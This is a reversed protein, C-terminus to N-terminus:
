SLGSASMLFQEGQQIMRNITLPPSNAQRQKRNEDNIEALLEVLSQAIREAHARSWFQVLAEVLREETFDDAAVTFLLGALKRLGEDFSAFFLRIPSGNTENVKTIMESLHTLDWAANRVGEIARLRNPSRLQKFLGKRPPSQPAFYICALLAAPGAIMFDDRMWSLLESLRDLNPRGSLELEAIKLAAIYNRRWRRLPFALDHFEQLRQPELPDLTDLDGFALDLWPHPDANDADRFRALERNAVDNGQTHALEHFAIAPEIQIDLFHCFVKIAAIKRLTQDMPTGAAIKAMRSVINRDPLLITQIKEFMAGFIFADPHCLGVPPPRYGPVFVDEAELMEGLTRLEIYPFNPPLIVSREIREPDDDDPGFSLVVHEPSQPRRARLKHTLKTLAVNRSNEDAVVHALTTGAM